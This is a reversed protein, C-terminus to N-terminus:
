LLDTSQEPALASVLILPLDQPPSLLASVGASIHVYMYIYNILSNVFYIYIYM